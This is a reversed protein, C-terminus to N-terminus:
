KKKPDAVIFMEENLNDSFIQEADVREAVVTREKTEPDLLIYSETLDSAHTVKDEAVEYKPLDISTRDVVDDDYEAVAAVSPTQMADVGKAHNLEAIIRDTTAKSSTNTVGKDTNAVDVLDLDEHKSYYGHAQARAAQKSAHKEELTRSTVAGEQEAVYDIAETLGSVARDVDTTLHVAIIEPRNHLRIPFSSSGIGRSVVMQKAPNGPLYFVGSTYKPFRGQGPAFLGGIFPLRIQGGHAHGSLVLDPSKDINEHYRLFAEPHHALLIKPQLKQETTLSVTRLADGNLFHRNAKDDLGMLTIAQGKYTYTIARDNLHVVGAKAMARILMNQHLSVADHNGFTAFTPAIDTLAHLFTYLEAEELGTADTEIIDGSLAIIDPQIETVHKVIANVDVMQNPLHIDSLHAITFGNLANDFRPNEVFYDTTGVSYNQGYVYAAGLVITGMGLLTNFAGKKAMM